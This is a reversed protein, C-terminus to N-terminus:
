RLRIGSLRYYCGSAALAAYIVPWIFISLFSGALSLNDLGTSLGTLVLIITPISPLLGGIFVAAVALRNLTRNRRRRIVLRIAEAIVIGATPAIFIIWFGLLNSLISGIASLVLSVVLALFFDYWRATDFVKQQGRICDPCRYGTETHVACRSCIPRECRNCRLGTEVSSHRYCYQTPFDPTTM